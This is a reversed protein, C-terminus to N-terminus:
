VGFLSKAHAVLLAHIQFDGSGLPEMLGRNVLVRIIPKPDAIDWVAELAALDFTAPKPAFVGLLAFYQRAEPDLRDTSRRLLVTVTTPTEQVFEARDAPTRAELLRAGERLEVLLDEVGWGMSQEAWLLRGAVQLALPLGELDRILECVADHNQEVVEHALVKLLDLSQDETLIPLKYIREPSVTITRAVDNARSSALVASHSGGVQFPTFDSVNWVDDMIFLMKKDKLLATLRACVEEVTFKDENLSLGVADAWTKLEALINPYEGLSVWLVGDPFAAHIEPDHALMASLTTKGIGPWGQIVIPGAESIALMRKLDAIAEERGLVLSPVPPLKGVIPTANLYPVLGREEKIDEYLQVTEREPLTGMEAQLRSAYNEYIRQATLPQGILTYLQMAQRHAHEDFSDIILWRELIPIAAEYDQRQIYLQVLKELAAIFKQQYMQQQAFQWDYFADSGRLFFGSMLDDQYLDIVAQLIDTNWPQKFLYDFQQADVWIDPSHTLAVTDRTCILTSGLGIEKLTALARRLEANSRASDLDPSLLVALATRSVPSEAIALYALLAMAKRRNIHLTDGGQKIQPAGFLFIQISTEVRETM